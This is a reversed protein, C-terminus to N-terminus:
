FFHIALAMLGTFVDTVGAQKLATTLHSQLLLTHVRVRLRQRAPLLYLGRFVGLQREIGRPVRHETIRVELDFARKVETAHLLRQLNGQTRRVSDDDLRVRRALAVTMQRPVREVTVIQILRQRLLLKLLDYELATFDRDM